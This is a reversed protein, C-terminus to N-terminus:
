PTSGHQFIFAAQRYDKGAKLAGQDLLQRVRNRRVLDRESIRKSQEPSGIVNVGSDRDKQDEDFLRQIESSTSEPQQATLFRPILSATCFMLVIPLVTKMPLMHESYVMLTIQQIHTKRM